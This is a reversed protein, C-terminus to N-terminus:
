PADGEGREALCVLRYGVHVVAIIDLEFPSLKRRLSAIHVRLTEHSFAAAGRWAFGWIEQKTVPRGAERVLSATHSLEEQPGQRACFPGAV